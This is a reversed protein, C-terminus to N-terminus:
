YGMADNYADIGLGMGLEMAYQQREAREERTQSQRYAATEFSICMEGSVDDGDIEIWLESGEAKALAIARNLDEGLGELSRYANIAEDRGQVSIGM